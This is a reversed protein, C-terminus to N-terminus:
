ELPKLRIWTGKETSINVMTKKFQLPIQTKECVDFKLNLIMKYIILKLTMLAFRNGICSRPGIGFPMYANMNQDKLNEPGFRDPDFKEPQPFFNSEHHFAYTTFMVPTKEPIKITKGDLEFSFEKACTRETAVGVSWKRMVELIFCDLYKLSKIDDYTIAKGNLKEDMEKFESRLREQIDPNVALEYAAFALTSSTTDFGALFFLLCQAVIEDDSWNFHEGGDDKLKEKKAEMLLNIMDPRFINKEERYKMTGMITQRFFNKTRRDLVSVDFKKMVKPIISILILKFMVFLTNPNMTKNAIIKFDNEPNKYSDIELGFVSTGIIDVTFASFLEKMEFEGKEPNKLDDKLTKIMSSTYQDVLMFMQRM